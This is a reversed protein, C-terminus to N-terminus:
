TDHQHRVATIVCVFLHRLRYRLGHSHDHRFDRFCEAVTKVPPGFSIPAAAAILVGGNPTNTLQAVLIACDNPAQGCTTTGTGAGLGTTITKHVVFSASLNGAPDAHTFVAPYSTGDCDNIASNLDIPSSLVAASCQTVAWDFIAPTEDFGTGSVTVVQGDVLGTNPTVTVTHVEAAGAPEGAVLSSGLALAAVVLAVGVRKRM